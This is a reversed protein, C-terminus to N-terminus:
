TVNTLLRRARRDLPRGTHHLLFDRAALLTDGPDGHLREVATIRDITRPHSHARFSGYELLREHWRTDLHVNLSALTDNLGTLRAAELDARLELQQQVRGDRRDGLTELSFLAAMVAVGTAILLLLGLPASIKLAVWAASFGGALLLAGGAAMCAVVTAWQRPTLVSTDKFRAHQMEHALVGRLVSASGRAVDRPVSIRWGSERDLYQRIKTGESQLADRVVVDPSAMGLRAAFGDVVQQCRLQDPDTVARSEVPIM